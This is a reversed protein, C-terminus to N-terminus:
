ADMVINKELINEKKSQQTKVQKIHSFASNMLKQLQTPPSQNGSKWYIRDYSNPYGQYGSLAYMHCYIEEIDLQLSKM